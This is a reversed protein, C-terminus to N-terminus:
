TAGGLAGEVAEETSWAAVLDGAIQRIHEPWQDPPLRGVYGDLEQLQATTRKQVEIAAAVKNAEPSAPDLTVRPAPSEAVTGYARDLIKHAWEVRQPLPVSIDYVAEALFKVMDAAHRQAEFEAINYVSLLQRLQRLAVDKAAAVDKPVLARRAM